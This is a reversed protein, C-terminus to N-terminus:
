NKIYYYWIKLTEIPFYSDGKPNKKIVCPLRSYRIKMYYREQFYQAVSIRQGNYDFYISEASEKTLGSNSFSVQDDALHLTQLVLGKLLFYKFLIL